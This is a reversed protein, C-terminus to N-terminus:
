DSVAVAPSSDVVEVYVTVDNTAAESVGLTQSKNVRVTLQTTSLSTVVPVYITNTSYSANKLSISITVVPITSFSIEPPFSFTVGGAVYDAYGVCFYLTSTPTVIGSSIVKQASGSVM